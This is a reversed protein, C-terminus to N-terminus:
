TVADRAAVCASASAYKCSWPLTSTLLLLLLLLLMLLPQLPMGTDANMDVGAIFLAAILGHLTTNANDVM